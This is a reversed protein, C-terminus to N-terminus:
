EPPLQWLFELDLDIGDLRGGADGENPGFPAMSADFPLFLWENFDVDKLGSNGFGISDQRNSQSPQTTSVGQESAHYNGNRNIVEARSSNNASHSLILSGRLRAAQSQLLTAYYSKLHVDDQNEDQLATIVQDLIQLAEKFKTNRVGLALAKMLFISSSITRFLIRMPSFYLQQKKGIQVIRALTQCCGDIVEEIFGYERSTMNLQRAREIFFQDITSESSLINQSLVRQVVLQMGISNILVRLHQYEIFLIDGFPVDSATLKANSQQWDALMLQKVELIDLFTSATGSALATKMFFFLDESINTTLKTLDIWSKIFSSWSAGIKVHRLLKMSPVSIGVDSPMFSTCGIRSSLANIFVFLLAPLRQRRLELHELYNEADDGVLGEPRRSEPYADFAGLEHALALASSLVMWSMREFRKTPEVVDGRWRKSVPVEDESLPPDREDMNTMIFDSDWGDTDPPFQLQRPYWESLLLLAEVSGINRTKAKSIKEQGLSLRMLLHQCHQWLRQHIFFTRSCGGVGPLMHHRSSIMLITCCLMPEQTVLYFQNKHLSYFDTLIPSLPSMNAFFLDVLRIAEHASFWGMKVFRCANWIQLADTDTLIRPIQPAAEIAWGNESEDQPQEPVAAEYLIDMADNTNSVVKRLIFTPLGDRKTGAQSESAPPSHPSDTSMNRDDSDVSHHLDRPSDRLNADRDIHTRSWPKKTTFTCEIQKKACRACKEEGLECKVKRRACPICAKYTRQFEYNWPARSRASRKKDM